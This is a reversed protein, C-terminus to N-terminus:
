DAKEYQAVWDIEIAAEGPTRDTPAADLGGQYYKAVWGQPDVVGTQMGLWMPVEQVPKNTKIEAWPEGDLTYIVRDSELTVGYTHWEGTGPHALSGADYRYHPDAEHYFGSFTDESTAGELFDVEPPWTDNGPWLLFAFSFGNAQPFKARVEWRGLVAQHGVASSVGASTWEGDKYLYRLKMSGDSVYVNDVNYRGLWGEGPAQYGWGYRGWVDGNLGSDFTDSFALRYGPLSEPPTSGTLASGSSAVVAPTEAPADGSAHASRGPTAAAAGEAQGAGEEDSIQPPPTWTAQPASTWNGTPAPSRREMKTRRAGHRAERTRRLETADGVVDGAPTTATPEERTRSGMVDAEALGACGTLSVAVLAAPIILSRRSM